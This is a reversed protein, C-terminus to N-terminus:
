ITTVSERFAAAISALNNKSSGVELNLSIPIVPVFPLVVTALM